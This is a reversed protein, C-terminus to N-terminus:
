YAIGYTSARAGSAPTGPGGARTGPGRARTGAGARTEPGPGPGLIYLYIYLYSGLVSGWVTKKLWGSSDRFHFSHLLIISSLDYIM